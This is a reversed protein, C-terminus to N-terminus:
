FIKKFNKDEVKYFNLIHNITNNKIEFIGVKGKFMSKKLFIKKDIIFNNQVVLYYVLGILDYSLFSIQNPKSEYSSNYEDIFLYLKFM